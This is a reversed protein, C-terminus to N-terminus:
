DAVCRVSLGWAPGLGMLALNEDDTDLRRSWGSQSWYFAKVDLWSFEGDWYISRSGSPIGKFGSSNDGDWPTSDTPSAKLATGIADAPLSLKLEEFDGQQPFNTDFPVHWGTPCIDWSEAALQNYLVGHLAYNEMTVAEDVSAGDYGYVYAHALSDDEFGLSPPSVTEMYRCNEAFWCQEGILVTEYNYGYYLVPDGCTWENAEIPCDTGFDALLHMLDSVGIVGDGDLDSPCDNWAVCSQIESDWVTGEGCASGGTECDDGFLPYVCSGDDNTAEENYNCATSDTCGPIPIQGNYLALVEEASLARDWIAFDDIDGNFSDWAVLGETPVYDPVQAHAVFNVMGCLLLFLRNM